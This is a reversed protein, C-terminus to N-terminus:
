QRPSGNDLQAHLPNHQWFLLTSGMELQLAQICYDCSTM